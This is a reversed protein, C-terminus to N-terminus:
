LYAVERQEQIIENIKGTEIYLQIRLTDTTQQM